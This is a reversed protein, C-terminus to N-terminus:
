AAQKRSEREAGPTVRAYSRRDAGQCRSRKQDVRYGRRMTDITPGTQPWRGPPAWDACQNECSSAPLRLLPPTEGLKKRPKEGGKDGGEESNVPPPPPLRPGAQKKKSSRRPGGSPLQSSRM